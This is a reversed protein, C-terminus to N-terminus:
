SRSSSDRQLMTEHLDYHGRQQETVDGREIRAVLEPLIRFYTETRERPHLTWMGPERGLYDVRHMGAAVMAEGLLREPLDIRPTALTLPRLRDRLPLDRIGRLWVDFGVKTLVPSHSRIGLGGVRERLRNRSMLFYRTTITRFRLTHIPGPEREAGAAYVRGDAKPPGPFPQFVLVNPREGLLRMAEELWTQSRGGFMIDSDLHLVHDHRAAYLGFFYAYFPGGRYTKAPPPTGNFFMAGVARAM